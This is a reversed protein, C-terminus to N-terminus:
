NLIFLLIPKFTSRVLEKIDWSEGPPRGFTRGKIGRFEQLHRVTIQVVNNHNKKILRLFLNNYM